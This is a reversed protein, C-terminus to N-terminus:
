RPKRAAMKSEELHMQVFQQVGFGIFHVAKALEQMEQSQASDKVSAAKSTGSAINALASEYTEQPTPNM